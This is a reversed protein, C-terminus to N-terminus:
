FRVGLGFEATVNSFGISSAGALISVPGINFIIGGDATFGTASLDTVTAWNGSVDQWLISRSGYGGGAYLTMFRWPSFTAGATVSWRSICEAGSTWIYGSATTGDSLCGYGGQTYPISLAGKVFGGFREGQLTAMAGYYLEPVGAYLIFGFSPAAPAATTPSALGASSPNALAAPASPLPSYPVVQAQPAELLSPLGAPADVDPLSVKRSGGFVEEYRMRISEFRLRQAPSMSGKADQLTGRLSSLKTRLQAVSSAQIREGAASRARIDICEDCIQQYQDLAADWRRDQAHLAICVVSLLISAFLRKM